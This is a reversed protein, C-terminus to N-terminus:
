VDGVIMCGTLAELAPEADLLSQPATQDPPNDVLNDFWWPLANAM